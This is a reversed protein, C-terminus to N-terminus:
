VLNSAEADIQVDTIEFGNYDTEVLFGPKAHNTEWFQAVADAQTEAEVTSVYYVRETSYIKFIAM